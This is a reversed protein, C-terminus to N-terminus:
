VDFSLCVAVFLVGCRRVVYFLCSWVAFLFLVYSVVVFVLLYVLCWIM